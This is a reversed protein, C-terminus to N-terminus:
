KGGAGALDLVTLPYSLRISEKASKDEAVVDIIFTGTRNLFIPFQMPVFNGKTLDIDEPLDKPLTTIVPQTLVQKGAADLIRMMVNVNPQGKADLKMYVLGFGASYPQGPFGVAPATIGVFGFKPPIVEFAYEFSKTEKALRDTITLRIKYKGVTQNPPLVIHLDGPMRTGGLQPAVDSPTDKKLQSKNASDLLELTTLYNARGTKPDLKLGEIDYTLFLFDGPLCKAEHRTAGLPGFCPRVNKLELASAAGPALALAALASLSFRM